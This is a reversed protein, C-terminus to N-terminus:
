TWGERRREDKRGTAFGMEIVREDCGRKDM